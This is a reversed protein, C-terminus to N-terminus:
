VDDVFVVAAAPLPEEAEYHHATRDFDVMMRQVPDPVVAVNIDDGSFARIDDLSRWRTIVLFEVGADVRRQLISAGLFGALKRLSAFTESKLHSAYEDAFEPKALGRWHRAIM